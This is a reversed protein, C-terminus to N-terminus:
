KIWDKLVMCANGINDLQKGIGQKNMSPDLNNVANNLATAAKVVQDLIFSKKKKEKELEECNDLVVTVAEVVKDPENISRILNAIKANELGTANQDGGGLLDLDDERANESNIDLDFTEVLKPAIDKLNKAIKPINEYLRGKAPTLLCAKSIEIFLEKDGPNNLIHKGQVIKKFAFEQKDVMSWEDAHGISELYESAYDYCEILMNIDESSKGQKKAIRGVDIGKDTKEKCDAAISHWAYEAKMNSQIQLEVELDYMGTKDHNPLVAVRVMEFYKYKEPNSYYLERWVCLRRNGNVVVGTDSVILAETQQLGEKKFSSLLKEKDALKKLLEHQAEQVEISYSDRTFFDKSIDPHQAIWEKQLNKTRINEIRYVLSEIRVEIVDLPQYKGQYNVPYKEKSGERLDKIMTIRKVEPYGFRYQEM